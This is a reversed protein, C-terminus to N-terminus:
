DGFEFTDSLWVGRRGGAHTASTTAKAIPSTDADAAAMTGITTPRASSSTSSEGTSGSMAATPAITSRWAKANLSSCPPATLPCNM